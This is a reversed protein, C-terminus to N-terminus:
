VITGSANRTLREPALLTLRLVRSVYSNNIKAKAAIQKVTNVAGTELMRRWRFKPAIANVM